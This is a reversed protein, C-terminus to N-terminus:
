QRLIKAASLEAIWKERKEPALSQTKAVYAIRFINFKGYLARAVEHQDADPPCDKVSWEFLLSEAGRESATERAIVNWTVKGPCRKVLGEYASAALADIAPPKRPKKITQLTLLETWSEVKQGPPVFELVRQTKGESHSVLTWEDLKYGGMLSEQASVTSVIASSSGILLVGCAAAINLARKM